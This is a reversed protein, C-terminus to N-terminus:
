TKNFYNKICITQNLKIKSLSLIIFVECVNIIQYKYFFFTLLYNAFLHLLELTSIKLKPHWTGGLM